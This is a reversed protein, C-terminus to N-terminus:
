RKDEHEDCSTYMYGGVGLRRRYGPAGCEECTELSREEIAMVISNLRSYQKMDSPNFYFRLGGFKEKIQAIVYNPDQAFLAADCERILEAWGYGCDIRAPIDDAFRDLINQFEPDSEIYEKM